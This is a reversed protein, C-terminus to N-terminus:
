ATQGRGGFAIAIRTRPSTTLTMTGGIQSTLTEVLNLGFSEFDQRPFDEPFGKGSDEIELILGSTEDRPVRSTFRVEITLADRGNYGHTISNTILENIILSLPLAIDVSLKTQEIYYVVACQEETLHSISLAQKVSSPIFTEADVQAVDRSLYIRNHVNAIARIRGATAELVSQFRPDGIERSKLRFLSIIIQLNNKVRHHVEKLLLEKERVSARLDDLAKKLNTIDEVCCLVGEPGGAETATFNLFYRVTIRRGSKTVNTREFTAIGAHPGAVLTDWYAREANDRTEPYVITFFYKGLLEESEREYMLCYSRNVALYQGDLTFLAIGLPATEFLRRYDSAMREAKALNSRGWEVASAKEKQLVNIRFALGFALLVAEGSSGLQLSYDTFYNNPLAGVTRLLFVIVGGVMVACASIFFNVPSYKRKLCAVTLVVTLALAALFIVALSLTRAQYPAFFATPIHAVAVLSLSFLVKDLRPLVQSSLLYKRVFQIYLALALSLAVTELMNSTFASGSPIIDLIIGQYIAMVVLITLIHFTYYVYSADRLMLFVFLNYLAMVAVLGFYFGLNLDEWTVQFISQLTVVALHLGIMDENAFRLYVTTKGRVPPLKLYYYGYRRPVNQPPANKGLRFEQRGGKESMMWVLVDDVIDTKVAWEQEPSENDVRFRIWVAAPTYGFNFYPLTNTSFVAGNIASAVREIDWQRGQDIFYECHPDLPYSDRDTELLLIDEAAGTVAPRLLFLLCLLPPAFLRIAGRRAARAFPKPPPSQRKFM